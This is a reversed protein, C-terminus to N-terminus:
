RLWLNVYSKGGIWTSIDRISYPNSSMDQTLEENFTKTGEGICRFSEIQEQKTENVDFIPSFFEMGEHKHNQKINRIMPTSEIVNKNLAPNISKQCQKLHDKYISIYNLFLIAVTVM